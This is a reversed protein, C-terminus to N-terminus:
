IRGGCGVKDLVRGGAEESATTENKLTIEARYGGDEGRTLVISEVVGLLVARVREPARRAATALDAFVARVRDLDLREVPMQKTEREVLAALRQRLSRLKEEEQRLRERLFESVGAEILTTGVKEVSGRRAAQQARTADTMWKELDESQCYTVLASLVAENARLENVTGSM